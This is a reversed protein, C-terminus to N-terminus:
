ARQDSAIAGALRREDSHHSAKMGGIRAVKPKRARRRRGNAVVLGPAVANGADILPPHHQRMEGHGLVEKEVILRQVTQPEHIPPRRM